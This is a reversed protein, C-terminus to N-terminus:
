IQINFQISTPRLGIAATARSRALSISILYKYIEEILKGPRM